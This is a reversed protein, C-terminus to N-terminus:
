SQESDSASADDEWFESEDHIDYKRAIEPDRTVLQAYDDATGGNTDLTVGDDRMKRLMDAAGQLNEIMEDISQAEISLSKNRRFQVYRKQNSRSSDWLEQFKPQVYSNAIPNEFVSDIM